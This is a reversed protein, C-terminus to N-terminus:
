CLIGRFTPEFGNLFFILFNIGRRIYIISFSNFLISSEKLYEYQTALKTSILFVFPSIRKQTSKLFRFLHENFSLYGSDFISWIKFLSIPVWVIEMNSPYEAYLWISTSSSSLSFVVKVVGHPVSMYSLIGKQDSFSFPKHICIQLQFIYTDKSIPDLQLCM